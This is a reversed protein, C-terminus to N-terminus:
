DETEDPLFLGNLKAKRSRMLRTWNTGQAVGRLRELFIVQQEGQTTQWFGAIRTLKM